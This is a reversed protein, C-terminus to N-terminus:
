LANPVPGLPVRTRNGSSDFVVLTAQWRGRPLGLDLVGRKPRVGLEQVRVVGDRVLRLRLKAWPSTADTVAWSLRTGRVRATVDPPTTDVAVKIERLLMTGRNGALDTATVRPRYEGPAKRGPRWVVAHWGRRRLGLGYSSGGVKVNATSIKSLWFRVLVDDRFGDQPWPYLTAVAAGMRFTPPEHSYEDFRSNAALWFEDRTQRALRGTLDV